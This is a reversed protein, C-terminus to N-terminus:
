PAGDERLAAEPAPPVYLGVCAGAGPQSEIRLSVGPREIRVVLSFLGFGDRPLAVELGVGGHRDTTLRHLEASQPGM